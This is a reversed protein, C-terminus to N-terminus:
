TDYLSLKKTLMRIGEEVPNTPHAVKDALWLTLMEKEDQHLYEALKIVHDRKARRDGREIKSFMPTDIELLAALQRQLVGQEDRLERIKKGFIM